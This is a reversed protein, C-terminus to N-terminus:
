VYRVGATKHQVLDAVSAYLQLRSVSNASGPAQRRVYESYISSTHKGLAVFWLSFFPSQAKGTGEPHQFEYRRSPVAYFVGSVDLSLGGVKKGAEGGGGMGGAGCAESSGGRLLAQSMYNKTACYSPLLVLWARNMAVCQKLCKEKHSGSFPPNTILVDYEPTKKAAWVAYCDSNTNHVHNFGLQQLHAVTAGACYYPDYIRLTARSKGLKAAYMDLLPAIDQYADLSTEFHDNYDAIFPHQMGAMKQRKAPSRKSESSAAHERVAVERGGTGGQKRERDGWDSPNSDDCGEPAAEGLTKKIKKRKKKKTGAENLVAGDGAARVPGDGEAAAEPRSRGEKNKLRRFLAQMGSFGSDGGASERTEGDEALAQGGKRKKTKHSPQGRAPSTYVHLGTGKAMAM